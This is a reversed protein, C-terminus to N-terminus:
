RDLWGLKEKKTLYLLGLIRMGVTLLYLSVLSWFGSAALYAFLKPMSHTSLGRPFLLPLILDGIPRLGFVCALLIMTVLYELPVKFISPVVQLPNAALV